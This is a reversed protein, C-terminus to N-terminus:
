EKAEPMQMIEFVAGMPDQVVAMRGGVPLDFPASLVTGGAKEARKVIVDVDDAAFYVDWTSGGAEMEPTKLLIGAVPDDGIKLLTYPKGGADITGARLGLADKYFAAAQDPDETCLENWIMAGPINFVEGGQDPAPTWLRLYAGVADQIVAMRGVGDEDMPGDLLKGGAQKVQDLSEDLDGVEFYTAWHPPAGLGRMEETLEYIGAVRKGDLRQVSYIAGQSDTERESTWGFVDAYFREAVSLDSTACDAWIPRGTKTTDNHSM